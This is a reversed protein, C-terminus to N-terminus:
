PIIEISHVVLVFDSNSGDRHSERIVNKMKRSRAVPLFNKENWHQKKNVSVEHLANESFTFLSESPQSVQFNYNQHPKAM